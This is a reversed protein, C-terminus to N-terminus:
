KKGNNIADWYCQEMWEDYNESCGLTDSFGNEQTFLMPISIGVRFLRNKNKCIIEHSCCDNIFEDALIKYYQHGLNKYNSVCDYFYQMFPRKLLFCQTCLTNTLTGFNEDDRYIKSTPLPRSGFSILDYKELFRDLKEFVNDFDQVGVGNMIKLDDEFIILTESGSILANEICNLYSQVHGWARWYPDLQRVGNIIEFGKFGLERLTRESKIRRDVRTPLNILFSKDAIKRGKYTLM